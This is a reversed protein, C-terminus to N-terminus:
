EAAKGERNWWFYTSKPRFKASRAAMQDLHQSFECRRRMRLLESVEALLAPHHYRGHQAGGVHHGVAGREVGVM